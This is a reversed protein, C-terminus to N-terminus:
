VSGIILCLACARSVLHSATTISFMTPAMRRVPHVFGIDNHQYIVNGDSPISRPTTNPDTYGCAAGKNELFSRLTSFGKQKSIKAFDSTYTSWSSFGTWPTKDEQIWASNTSGGKFAVLPQRIYGHGKVSTTACAVLLTIASLVASSSVM